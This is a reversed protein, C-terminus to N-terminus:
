GLDISVLLGLDWLSEFGARQPFAKPNPNALSFSGTLFVSPLLASRSVRLLAEQAGVRARMAALDQRSALAVAVLEGTDKAEQATAEPPMPSTRTPADWALGILLNLRARSLALSSRTESGRAEADSLRMMAALLESRTGAGQALRRQADDRHARMATLNEEVVAETEEALVLGWYAQEAMTATNRRRSREDAKAAEYLARAQDVGASLRSGTFLPQQMALRLNYSDELPAPLTVAGAPLSIKGPDIPSSRTYGASGVLSPLYQLEMTSVRAGAAQARAGDLKLAQSAGLARAVCDEPTVVLGDEAMLPSMFALSLSISLALAGRKLPKTM